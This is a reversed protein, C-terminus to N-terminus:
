PRRRTRRTITRSMYHEREADIYEWRTDGNEKKLETTTVTISKDKFPIDNDTLIKKTEKCGDCDLETYISLKYKKTNLRM